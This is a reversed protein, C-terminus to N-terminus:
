NDYNSLHNHTAKILKETDEFRSNFGSNMVIIIIPYNLDVNVVVMLNGGALDTYGTKSAILGNMNYIFSNTNTFNHLNNNLSTKRIEKHRTPLLIEPHKKLTYSVLKVMDNASGYAGASRENIDLGTPNQFSTKSLNLERAKQNMKSVFFETENEKKERTQPGINSAIAYAADNASTLMTIDILDKLYWIENAFLGSDGYQQLFSPKMLVTLYPDAEETAVLSTMIKTLSALPLSTNNNKKFLAKDKKLDWVIASKAKIEVTKFDYVKEETTKEEEIIKNEKENNKIEINEQTQFIFFIFISFALFSILILFIRIILKINEIKKGFINQM